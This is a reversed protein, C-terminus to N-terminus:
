QQVEAEVLTVGRRPPMRRYARVPPSRDVPVGADIQVEGWTDESVNTVVIRVDSRLRVEMAAMIGGQVVPTGAPVKIKVVVPRGYLPFTDQLGAGTNVMIPNLSATLPVPIEQTIAAPGLDEAEAFQPLGVDEGTCYLTVDNPVTRTQQLQEFWIRWLETDAQLDAPNVPEADEPQEPKLAALPRYQVTCRCNITNGPSGNPDGPFMLKEGGVEFPEDLAVTQGNADAHAPRTRKGEVALWRKEFQFPSSRAAAYQGVQMATHTETRAIRRARMMSAEEGFAAKIADAVQEASQGEALGRKVIDAIQRKLADSIQVVRSATWQEIFREVEADMAEFVKVEFAHAAKDAVRAAFTLATNRLSPRLVLNVAHRFDLAVLERVHLFHDAAKTGVAHIARALQRQLSLEHALM